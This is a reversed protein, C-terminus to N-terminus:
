FNPFYQFVLYGYTTKLLLLAEKELDFDSKNKIAKGEQILIAGEKEYSEEIEHVGVNCDEVCVRIAMKCVHQRLWGRNEYEISRRKSDDLVQIVWTSPDM